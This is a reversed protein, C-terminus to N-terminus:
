VIDGHWASSVNIAGTTWVSIKIVSLPAIIIPKSFTMVPSPGQSLRTVDIFNFVNANLHGDHTDSRLRIIAEKNSTSATAACRWHCLRLYKGVPIQRASSLAFNASAPIRSVVSGASGALIDVNGVSLGVSGVTTTHHNNVFMCDTITAGDEDICAAETIGNLTFSGEHAVGATNLYHISGTRVGTGAAADNASSSIVYPTYGATDPNPITGGLPWLDQNNVVGGAVYESIAQEVYFFSM